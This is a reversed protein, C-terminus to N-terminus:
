WRVSAGVASMTLMHVVDISEHKHIRKRNYLVDCITTTSHAAFTAHYLSLHQLTSLVNCSNVTHMQHPTQLV